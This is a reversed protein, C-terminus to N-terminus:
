KLINRAVQIQDKYKRQVDEVKQYYLDTRKIVAEPDNKVRESSLDKIYSDYVKKLNKARESKARWAAEKYSGKAYHKEASKINGRSEAALGIINHLSGRKAKQAYRKSAKALGESDASARGRLKALQSETRRIGWKMGKIGYHTLTPSYEYQM